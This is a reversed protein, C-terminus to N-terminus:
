RYDTASSGTTYDLHLLEYIFRWPLRAAQRRKNAAKSSQKVNWPCDTEQALIPSPSGTM